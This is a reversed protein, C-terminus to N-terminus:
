KGCRHAHVELPNTAKKGILPIIKLQM